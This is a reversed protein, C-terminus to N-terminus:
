MITYLLCYFIEMGKSFIKVEHSFLVGGFMVPSAINVSLTYVKCKIIKIDFTLKESETNVSFTFFTM